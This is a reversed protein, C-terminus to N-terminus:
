SSHVKPFSELKFKLLLYRILLAVRARTLVEAGSPSQNEPVRHLVPSPNGSECAEGPM